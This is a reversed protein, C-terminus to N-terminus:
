RTVLKGKGKKKILLYWSIEQKYGASSRDNSEGTFVCASCINKILRSRSLSLSEIIRWNLLSGIVTVVGGWLRKRLASLSLSICTSLLCLCFVIFFSLFCFLWFSTPPGCAFRVSNFSLTTTEQTNHSPPPPPPRLMHWTWINICNPLYKAYVTRKALKPELKLTAYFSM